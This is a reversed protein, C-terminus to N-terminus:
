IGNNIEESSISHIILDLPFDDMQSLETPYSTCIPCYRPTNKMKKIIHELDWGGIWVRAVRWNIQREKAVQLIRAGSGEAHQKLRKGLNGTAGVYHRAHEIATDFHILYIM